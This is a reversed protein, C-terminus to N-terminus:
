SSAQQIIRLIILFLRLRPDHTGHWGRAHRMIPTGGCVNRVVAALGDPIFTRTATGRSVAFSGSFERKRTSRRINVSASPDSQLIQPEGKNLLLVSSPDSHANRKVAHEDSSCHRIEAEDQATRSAKGRVLTFRKGKLEAARAAEGARQLERQEAKRVDSFAATLHAVVHYRNLVIKSLGHPVGNRTAAIYPDWMDMVVARLRRREALPRSEWFEALTAERRHGGVWLVRDAELDNIVTM